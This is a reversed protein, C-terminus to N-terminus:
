SELEISDSEENETDSERDVISTKNTTSSHILTASKLPIPSVSTDNRSSNALGDMFGCKRRHQRCAYHGPYKKACIKKWQQCQELIKVQDEQEGSDTAEDSSSNAAKINADSTSNLPLQLDVSRCNQKFQRCAYHKPYKEECKRQWKNCIRVLKSSVKTDNRDNNADDSLEDFINSSGGDTSNNGIPFDILGCKRKYMRCAFHKPYKVACKRKWKPCDKRSNKLADHGLKKQVEESKPCGERYLFCYGHNQTQTLCNRKLSDCGRDIDTFTMKQLQSWAGQRPAGFNQYKFIAYPITGLEMDVLVSADKNHPPVIKGIPPYSPRVRDRKVMREVDHLVDGDRSRMLFGHLNKHSYIAIDKLWSDYDKRRSTTQVYIRPKYPARDLVSRLVDRRWEGGDVDDRRRIDVLIADASSFRNWIYTEADFFKPLTVRIISRIRPAKSSM